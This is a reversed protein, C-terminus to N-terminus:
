EHKENRSMEEKLYIIRDSYAALEGNHTVMVVTMEGALSKLLSIIMFRLQM